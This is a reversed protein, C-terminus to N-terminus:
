IKGSTWHIANHLIKRFGPNAYAQNDHGSVFCFVRSNKYQRAWAINKISTENDTTILITNGPEEPEGMIYTEDIM